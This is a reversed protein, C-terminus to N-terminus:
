FTLDAPLGTASVYTITHSDADTFTGAPIQFFQQKGLQWIQDPIAVAAVPDTNTVTLTWTDFASNDFEDTATM